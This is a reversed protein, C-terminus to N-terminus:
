RSLKRRGFLRLVFLTAFALGVPGVLSLAAFLMTQQEPNLWNLGIIELLRPFLLAGAVAWVLAAAVVVRVFVLWGYQVLM